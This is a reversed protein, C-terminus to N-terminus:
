GELLTARQSIRLQVPLPTPVIPVRANGSGNGSRLMEVMLGARRDWLVHGEVEVTSTQEIRMGGMNSTSSIETTGALAIELVDRGAATTEGVVTYRYISTERVPGVEAEGSYSVTDVWEDGPAVVRDPLGPFFTHATTLSSIM